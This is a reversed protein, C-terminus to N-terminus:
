GSFYRLANLPKKNSSAGSQAVNADGVNFGRLNEIEGRGPYGQLVPEGLDEACYDECNM